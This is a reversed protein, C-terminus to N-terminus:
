LCIHLSYSHSTVKKQLCFKITVLTGTPHSPHPLNARTCLGIREKKLININYTKNM